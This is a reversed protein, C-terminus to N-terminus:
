ERELRIAGNERMVVFREGNSPQLKQPSADGPPRFILESPRCRQHSRILGPPLPFSQDGVTYEVAADSRNAIKFEIAKSKPRGFMQVAYFYGSQASRAVAVGTETVSPDLMNRRHGPSHKWGEFFGNALEMTTFGTSNYQYAINESIVCYDYGFKKARGAPQNGDATHGYKNTRAIYNAFYRATESLKSNLEVKQLKQEQRFANTSDIILKSAQTLDPRTSAAPVEAQPIVLDAENQESTQAQPSASVFFSLALLAPWLRQFIM